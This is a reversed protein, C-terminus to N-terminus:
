DDFEIKLMMTILEPAFVKPKKNDAGAVLNTADAAFGTRCLALQIRDPLSQCRFSSAPHLAHHVRAHGGGPIERLDLETQVVQGSTSRDLNLCLGQVPINTVAVLSGVKLTANAELIGVTASVVTITCPKGRVVSFEPGFFFEYYSGEAGVAGVLVPRQYDAIRTTEFRTHSNLSICTLRNKNECACPAEGGHPM